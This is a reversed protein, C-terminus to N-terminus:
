TWPFKGKKDPTYTYLEIIEELTLTTEKPGARNGAIYDAVSMDPFALSTHGNQELRELRKKVRLEVLEQEVKRLQDDSDDVVRYGLSHVEQGHVYDEMTEKDMLGSSPSDTVGSWEVYRNDGLKVISGM